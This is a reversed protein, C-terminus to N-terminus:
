KVGLKSEVSKTCVYMTNVNNMDTVIDDFIKQIASKAFKLFKEQSTKIKVKTLNECKSRIIAETKQINGITENRFSTDEVDNNRKWKLWEKTKKPNSNTKSNENVGLHSIISNNGTTDYSVNHKGLGM